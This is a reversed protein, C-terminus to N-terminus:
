IGQFRYVDMALVGETIASYDRSAIAKNGAAGLAVFLPLLHEDGPHARQAQPALRRYDLLANIDNAKLKTHFWDQFDMVYKPTNEATAGWMIEGLNHTMGGSALLLVDDHLVPALIQGLRYHYDPGRQSNISVPVVPIDADAYMRRLPVWAGHDLGRMNDLQAPWDSRQLQEYVAKALAPEGPPMYAIDYLAAPFGYFDHIASHEKTSGILTIPASWHASVAVIARPKSLLQALAQWAQGTPGADLALMPSGHSIFIGPLRM